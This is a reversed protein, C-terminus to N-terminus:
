IDMNTGSLLMAALVEKTYEVTNVNVLRLIITNVCTLLKDNLNDKSNWNHKECDKIFDSVASRFEDFTMTCGFEFIYNDILADDIETNMDDIVKEMQKSLNDMENVIKSADIKKIKEM